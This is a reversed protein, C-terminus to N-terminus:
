LEGGNLFMQAGTPYTAIATDANYDPASAGYLVCRNHKWAGEIKESVIVGYAYKSASTADTFQIETSALQIQPTLTGTVTFLGAVNSANIATSDALSTTLQVRFFGVGDSSDVRVFTLFGDASLGLAAKLGGVTLTGATLMIRMGDEDASVDTPLTQNGDSVLYNGVKIGKEQYKNLGFKNSAASHAIADAKILAYNNKIFQSISPQGKPVGDFSHDIIATLASVAQMTTSMIMRGFMQGSTRPNSVQEALSRVVQQKEGMGNKGVSYVDSGIRGRIYARSGGNKSKAM